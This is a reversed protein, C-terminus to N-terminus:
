AESTQFNRVADPAKTGTRPFLLKFTSGKGYVSDVEIRGGHSHVIQQVLTLGLGAGRRTQTDSFQARYYPEFIRQLDQTNIGLGQDQVAITVFEDDESLRVTLTKREASYKIANDILNLLARSVGERDWLQEEPVNEIELQLDFGKSRIWSEYSSVLTQVLDVPDVPNFVLPRAGKALRAVDLVNEVLHSLHVVERLISEEIDRRDRDPLIGSGRKLTEAGMRIMSLPTRLEHSINAILATRLQIAEAERQLGRIAFAVGVIVVILALIVYVVSVIRPNQWGSGVFSANIIAQIAYDHLPPSLPVIVAPGIGTSVFGIQRPRRVVGIQTERRVEMAEPLHAMHIQSEAEIAGRVVLLLRSPDYSYRITGTATVFENRFTRTPENELELTVFLAAAPDLDPVYLASVIWPNRRLWEELSERTPNSAREIQQWEDAAQFIESKIVADARSASIEAAHHLYQVSLTGLTRETRVSLQYSHYSLAALAGAVLLFPIVIYPRLISSPGSFLSRITSRTSDLAM